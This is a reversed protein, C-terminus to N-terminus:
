GEETEKTLARKLPSVDLEIYFDVMERLEDDTKPENCQAHLVLRGDKSIMVHHNPAQGVVYGKYEIM